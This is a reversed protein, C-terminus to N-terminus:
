MAYDRVAASQQRSPSIMVNPGQEGASRNAELRLTIRPLAEAMTAEGGHVKGCDTRETRPDLNSVLAEVAFFDM